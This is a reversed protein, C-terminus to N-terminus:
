AVPRGSHGPGKGTDPRQGESGQEVLVHARPACSGFRWEPFLLLLHPQPSPQRGEAPDRRALHHSAALGPMGKGTGAAALQWPVGVLARRHTQQSLVDGSM